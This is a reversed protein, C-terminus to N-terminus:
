INEYDQGKLIFEFNKIGSKKAHVAFEKLSKITVERDRFENLDFIKYFIKKGNTKPVDICFEKEYEKKLNEWNETELKEDFDINKMNCIGFIIKTKSKKVDEYKDISEAETDWYGTDCQLIVSFSVVPKEKVFNFVHYYFPFWEWSNKNHLNKANNFPPIGRIERDNKYSLGFCEEGIFLVLSLISETFKMALRFASRVNTLLNDFSDM